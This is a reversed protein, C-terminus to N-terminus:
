RQELDISWVNLNNQMDAKPRGGINFIISESVKKDWIHITYWTYICIYKLILLRYQKKKNFISTKISLIIIIILIIIIEEGEVGVM